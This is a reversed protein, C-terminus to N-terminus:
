SRAPKATPAASRPVSSGRVSMSAPSTTRPRADEPTCEFPKESTLRMTSFLPIPQLSAQGRRFRGSGQRLTASASAYRRSSRGQRTARDSALAPSLASACMVPPPKGSFIGVRDQRLREADPEIKRADLNRRHEAPKRRGAGDGLVLHQAGEVAADAHDHDGRAQAAPGDPTSELRAALAHARM